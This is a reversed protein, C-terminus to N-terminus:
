WLANIANRLKTFSLKAVHNRRSVGLFRNLEAKKTIRYGLYYESGKVRKERIPCKFENEIFILDQLYVVDRIEIRRLTEIFKYIRERNNAIQAFHNISAMLPLDDEIEYEREMFNRKQQSLSVLKFADSIRSILILLQKLQLKKLPKEIVM